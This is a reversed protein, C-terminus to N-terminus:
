CDKFEVIYEEALYSDNILTKEPSTWKTVYVGNDVKYPYPYCEVDKIEGNFNTTIIKHTSKDLINALKIWRIIDEFDKDHPVYKDGECPSTTVTNYFEDVYFKVKENPNESGKYLILSYLDADRPGDVTVNNRWCVLDNIQRRIDMAMFAKRDESLCDPNDMILSRIVDAHYAAAITHRGICYRYSMWIFDEMRDNSITITNKKKRAM